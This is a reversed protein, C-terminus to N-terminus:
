VEMPNARKRGMEASGFCLIHVSKEPMGSGGEPPTKLAVAINANRHSQTDPM